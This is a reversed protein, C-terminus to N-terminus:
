VLIQVTQKKLMALNRDLKEDPRYTPIIVGIKM